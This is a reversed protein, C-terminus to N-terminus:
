CRETNLVPELLEKLKERARSLRSMVTGLSIDLQKSIEQYSLGESTRLIFVTRQESPIQKLASYLHEKLENEQVEIEPNSVSRFTEHYEEDGDVIFNEKRRTKKNLFNLTTNLAIRHLWPYFPYSDDFRNLNLYAKVFTDQVIDDTDSHDLVMKRVTFYIRKRYKLVLKEFAKKSGTTAKQILRLDEQDDKTFTSNRIM